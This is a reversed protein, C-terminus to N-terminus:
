VEKHDVQQEEDRKGVGEERDDVVVTFLPAIVAEHWEWSALKKGDHM